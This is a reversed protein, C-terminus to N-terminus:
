DAAEARDQEPPPDKAEPHELVGIHYEQVMKWGLWGSGALLTAGILTLWFGTFARDVPPGPASWRLVLNWTFAGLVLLNGIGHALGVRRAGRHRGVSLYDITGPIAAVLAGVVGILLLPLTSTWWIEARSIMHIIDFILVNLFAGAPILILMPHVPHTGIRIRSLM